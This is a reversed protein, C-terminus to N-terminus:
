VSLPPEAATIVKEDTNSSEMTSIATHIFAKNNFRHTRPFFLAVAAAVFCFVLKQLEDTNVPAAGELFLNLVQENSSRVCVDRNVDSLKSRDCSKDCMKVCILM